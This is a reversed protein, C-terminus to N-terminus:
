SPCGGAGLGRPSGAHIPAAACSVCRSRPCRCSGRPAARLSRRGRRVDQQLTVVQGRLEKVKAVDIQMIAELVANRQMLALIEAAKKRSLKKLERLGEEKEAKYRSAKPEDKWRSGALASVMGVQIMWAELRMSHSTAMPSTHFNASTVPFGRQRPTVHPM